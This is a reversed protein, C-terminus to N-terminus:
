NSANSSTSTAIVKLVISTVPTDKTKSMFFINVPKGSNALHYILTWEGLEYPKEESIPNGLINKIEQPTQGVRTNNINQEKSLIEIRDISSTDDLSFTVDKLDKFQYLTGGDSTKIIIPQGYNVSLSALKLGLFSIFEPQEKNSSKQAVDSTKQAGNNGSTTESKKASCGVTLILLIAVVFFYKLKRM